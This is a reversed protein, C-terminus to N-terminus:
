WGYWVVGFVLVVWLLCGICCLYMGVLGNGVRGILFFVIMDIVFMFVVGGFVVVSVFVVCCVFVVDLGVCICWNLVSICGFVDDVVGGDEDLIVIDCVGVFVVGVMCIVGVCVFWDDSM